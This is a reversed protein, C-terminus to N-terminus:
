AVEAFVAKWDQAEAYAFTKTYASDMLGDPGLWYQFTWRATNLSKATFTVKGDGFSDLTLSGGTSVSPWKVVENQTVTEVPGGEDGDYGLILSGSLILCAAAVLVVAFNPNM